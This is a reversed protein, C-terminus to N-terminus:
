LKAEFYALSYSCIILATALTDLCNHLQHLPPYFPGLNQQLRKTYELQSNTSFFFGWFLIDLTGTFISAFFKKWCWQNLRPQM